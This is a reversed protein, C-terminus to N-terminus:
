AEQVPPPFHADKHDTHQHDDKRNRSILSVQDPFILRGRNDLMGVVQVTRLTGGAKRETVSVKEDPRGRRITLTLDRKSLIEAWERAKLGAGDGATLLEMVIVTNPLKKRGATAEVQKRELKGKEFQAAVPLALALLLGATSIVRM